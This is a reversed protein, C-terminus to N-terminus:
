RDEGNKQRVGIQHEPAEECRWYRRSTYRWSNNALGLAMDTLQVRSIRQLEVKYPPNGIGRGEPGRFDSEAIKGSYINFVELVNITEGWQNEKIVQLAGLHDLLRLANPTLNVAGGRTRPEPSIEILHINPVQGAPAFKTLALATALGAVGGGLILIDM